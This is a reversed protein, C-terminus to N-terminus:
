AAGALRALAAAVFQGELSTGYVGDRMSVAFMSGYWSCCGRTSMQSAHLLVGFLWLGFM